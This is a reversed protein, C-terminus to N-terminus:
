AKLTPKGSNNITILASPFVQRPNAKEEFTASNLYSLLYEIIATKAVHLKIQDNLGIQIGKSQLWKYFTSDSKITIQYFDNEASTNIELSYLTKLISIYKPDLIDVNYFISYRNALNVVSTLVQPNQAYMELNIAKRNQWLSNLQKVTIQKNKFLQFIAKLSDAEAETDIKNAWLEVTKNSTNSFLYHIFNKVETRIEDISRNTQNNQILNNLGRHVEVTRIRDLGQLTSAKLINSAYSTFESESSGGGVYGLYAIAISRKIESEFTCPPTLKEILINIDTTNMAKFEAIYGAIIENNPQQQQLIHQNQTTAGPSDSANAGPQHFLNATISFGLAIGLTLATNLVINKLGSFSNIVQSKLGPQFM